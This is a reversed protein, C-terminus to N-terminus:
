DEFPAIATVVQQLFTDQRLKANNLRINTFDLWTNYSYGSSGWRKVQDSYLPKIQAVMEKQLAEAKEANFAEQIIQAREYVRERFAANEMPKAFIMTDEESLTGLGNYAVAANGLFFDLYSKGALRDEEVLGNNADEEEFSFDIDHLCFRWKTDAYPNGEEVEATRWFRFNNYMFDWNGVYANILVLDILSDVDVVEAFAQYGEDTTFDTEYLLQMLSDYMAYAEEEDYEKVELNYPKGANAWSKDLLVVNDKDVGYNDRFYEASYHERMIYLGWYAGNLYVICPRSSTTSVATDEAFAQAYADTFFAARWDNGGNHLRFRTLNQLTGTGDERMAGDFLDVSPPVNKEDNEDKNFNLNLTRQPFQKTFNGGLKVQTNLAFSEGKSLDYYEMEARIKKEETLDNYMGNAGFWDSLSATLCIVPVTYYEEADEKVLYTATKEAVTNGDKDVELLRLPTGAHVDRFSYGEKPTVHDIVSSDKKEEMRIKGKYKESQTTPKSGNTTYYITHSAASKSVTLDFAESYIGGEHSLTLPEDAVSVCGALPFLAMCAAIAISLNKKQRM